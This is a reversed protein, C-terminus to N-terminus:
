TKNAELGAKECRPHVYASAPSTPTDHGPLECWVGSKIIDATFLSVLDAEFAGNWSKMSWKWAGVGQPFSLHLFALGLDVITFM